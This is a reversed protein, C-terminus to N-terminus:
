VEEWGTDFHNSILTDVTDQLDNDIDEQPTGEAFELEVEYPEVGHHGCSAWVKFKRMKKQPEPAM